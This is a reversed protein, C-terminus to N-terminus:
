RISNLQSEYQLAAAMLEPETVFSDGPRLYPRDQSEGNSCLVDDHWDNNYTPSYDCSWLRVQPLYDDTAYDSVNVREEVPEHMREPAPEGGGRLDDIFDGFLVSGMLWALFALTIVLLLLAGGGM